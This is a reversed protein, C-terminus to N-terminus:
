GHKPGALVQNKPGKKLEDDIIAKFQEVPQAGVLKRGNIFFTPTGSAGLKTGEDSDAKIAAEAAPSNEDAHFKDMNLGLEQAYQDYVAPSLKSQDTFLKDHMEWFKGQKFAAYAAKAAPMANPHFPLPQNKWVVKVKDKYEDEVQKVTPEARGCFPCQFDSFLVVTVPAQPAGRVPSNGIAVAVPKGDDGPAAAQAPAKPANKVNEDVEAAYLKDGRLGKKMLVDAHKIEQDIIAKFQDVPQAGVLQRGNIFFTPTGNAGVSNGYKQDAEIKPKCEHSDMSKQFKDMNLGAAQAWKKYADPGLDKQNSYMADHMQWFKGQEAAACAAEAAPMANPHFPLPENRWVLRVDNPYSKLVDALTPEVRSCFPCQFDSFEVITVKPNKAGRSVKEANDPLDVKRVQAVPPAQNPQQPPPAPAAAKATKQIEAYIADSKIGQAELQKAHAMEADVIKEFEAQPQAGSLKKGNILFGPTGALGVKQAQAQEETIRTALAPDNLDAHFKNMDLGIQQAWKDYSEPSLQGQNAFLLDYMEFFKGQKQAALAAKAAPMANPHFPLPNMKVVLRVDDGYKQQIAKVTPVVRSCFPCQFDTLEVLTIRAGPKGQVPSDGLPMQFYDNDPPRPTNPQPPTNQNQAVPQNQAPAGSKNNVAQGAVFGIAGGVLLAVIWNASNKVELGKGRVSLM